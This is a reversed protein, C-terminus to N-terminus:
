LLERIQELMYEKNLWWAQRTMYDDSYTEHNAPRNLWVIRAPLHRSNNVLKRTNQDYYAPCYQAKSADPRLHLIRGATEKVFNNYVRGNRYTLEVGNRIKDVDEQWVSRIDGNLDRAPVNWFKAGLFRMGAPNKDQRYSNENDFVLLLFRQSELEAYLDSSEWDQEALAEFDPIGQVKFNEKATKHFLTITKIRIQGNRFEEVNLSAYDNDTGDGDDAGQIQLMRRVLMYNLNKPVDHSPWKLNFKQAIDNLTEGMYPRFYDLIIEETSKTSLARADRILSQSPHDRIIYDQLITTMFGQKFCYARSAATEGNSQTTYRYDRNGKTCAGVTRTLSETLENARGEAILRHITEWDQRIQAMHKESFRVVYQQPFDAENIDEMAFMNAFKVKYKRRDEDEGKRSVDRRLYQIVEIFRNKNWFSSTHFTVNKEERYNIINLVLREGAKFDTGDKTQKVDIPTVKLEVGAEPFDPASINDAPHNFWIQEIVSGPYNKSNPKLRGETDIEGLTLDIADLAHEQIAKKTTYESKGFLPSMVRDAANQDAANWKVFAMEDPSLWKIARGNQLIDADITPYCIFSDIQYNQGQERYNASCLESGVSLEGTYTGRLIRELVDLEKEGTRIPTGPFSWTADGATDDPAVCLIKRDSNICIAKIVRNPHANRSTTRPMTTEESGTPCHRDIDDLIPDHSAVETLPPRM